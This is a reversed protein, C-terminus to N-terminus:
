PSGVRAARWCAALEEGRPGLGHATLRRRSGSTLEIRVQLWERPAAQTFRDIWEIACVGEGGAIEELGLEVLEEASDLRYLDVHHLVLRGGRYENILTFTPSTVAGARLGLGRALGRVFCTKGCGLEGTLGIVDGPRLHAALAAALRETAAPGHTTQELSPV